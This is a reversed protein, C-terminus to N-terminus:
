ASTQQGGSATLIGTERLSDLHRAIASAHAPDRLLIGCELNKEFAYSTLNASGILATQRDVVIIKAHLSAGSERYQVPWSLRTAPLDFFGTRGQFKPNDAQQELLLTVEVGRAAAATLATSLSKPPYSAYSVLLIERKASDVLEGVVASTLRSTQISSAPGTWVVDVRHGVLQRRRAQAAGLLLGAAYPGETDGPLYSRLRRCAARVAIGAVQAELARLGRRGRGAPM